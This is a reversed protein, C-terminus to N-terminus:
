KIKVSKVASFAGHVTESGVKTYARVKFYYTKGSTLGSKTQADPWGKYSDLKTFKKGDTSYYVQYGTEGAVDSWSITAKGKSSSKVTLTPAAPAFKFTLAVGSEAHIVTKSSLKTYATVAIKYTTGMKLSKGAYDKKLTYSNTEVSAVKVRTKGDVTEYVYVRYGTAGKVESWTLKVANTKSATAKIESTKGPAITFKLTESGDYEGKLTVKIAYVGPNKRGDAYTVTYDRDKILENGASDKVTVSPTRVKGNYTCKETSLKFVSVNYLVEDAEYGCIKCTGKRSGNTTTTAKELNEYNFEHGLKEIVQQKEFVEGCFDCHTGKTLGTSTCTAPIEKDVVTKHDTAPVVSPKTVIEGCRDCKEGATSGAETCTAKVEPITVAKHGLVAVEGKYANGCECTFTAKGKETCTPELTVKSTHTHIHSYKVVDKGALYLADNDEYWTIGYWANTSAAYFVSEVKECGAFAGLEVTKVTNPIFLNKLSACEGFTGEEITAVGSPIAISEIGCDYFAYAEINVTNPYLAVTKLSDCGFFAYSSITTLSEPLDVTALSKCGEFASDGIVKVGEPIAVSTLEVCNNFAGEGIAVVKSGKYEAPITLAGEANQNCGSVMVGGDCATFTLASADAASAQIAVFTFAVVLMLILALNKITKKM